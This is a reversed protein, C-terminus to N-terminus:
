ARAIAPTANRALVEVFQPATCLPCFPARGDAACVAVWNNNCDAHVRHCCSLLVSARPAAISELCFPCDADAAGALRLKTELEATLKALAAHNRAAVQAMAHAFWVGPPPKVVGCGDADLRRLAGALAPAAGPPLRAGAAGLASEFGERVECITASYEEFLAFTAALAEPAPEKRLAALLAALAAAGGGGAAEAAEVPAALAGVAEAVAAASPEPPAALALAGGAARPTGAYALRRPSAIRANAFAERVADAAPPPPAARANYLAGRAAGAAAFAPPPAAPASVLAVSASAAALGANSRMQVSRVSLVATAMQMEVDRAAAARELLAARM